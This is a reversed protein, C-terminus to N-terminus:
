YNTPRMSQPLISGHSNVSNRKSSARQAFRTTTQSYGYFVILHRVNTAVHFINKRLTKNTRLAAREFLQM